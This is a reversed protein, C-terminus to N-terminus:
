RQRNGLPDSRPEQRRRCDDDARHEGDPDLKDIGAEVIRIEQAAGDSCAQPQDSGDAKGVVEAVPGPEPDRYPNEAAPEDRDPQHETDGDQQRPLLDTIRGLQWRFPEFARYKWISIATRWFGVPRLRRKCRGPEIWQALRLAFCPTTVSADIGLAIAYLAMSSRRM